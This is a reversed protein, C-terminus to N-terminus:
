VFAVNTSVSTAYQSIVGWLNTTLGWLEVASGKGSLTITGLTSTVSGTSCLFAGAGTTLIVAVGTTPNFIRKGVGPIPANLNYATTASAGTAGVMSLGWASLPSTVSTSTITSGASSIGEVQTRIDKPGVLYGDPSNDSSNGFTLAAKRGLMSIMFSSRLGNLSTDQPVAM